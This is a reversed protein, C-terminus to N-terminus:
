VLSAKFVFIGWGRVRLVPNLFHAVMSYIFVGYVFM